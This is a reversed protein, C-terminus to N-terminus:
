LSVAMGVGAYRHMFPKVIWKCYSGYANDPKDWRRLLQLQASGGASIGAANLVCKCVGTMTNGSDSSAFYAFNTSTYNAAITLATGSSEEIVFHQQPDDAVLVNVYGSSDVDKAIPNTPLYPYNSDTPGFDGNLIAVISGVFTSSSAATAVVIYGNADLDVPQNLWVGGVAGTQMKYYNCRISGFPQNIPRLGCPNSTNAM